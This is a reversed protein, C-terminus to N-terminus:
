IRWQDTIFFRSTTTDDNDGTSGPLGWLERKYIIYSFLRTYIYINKKYWPVLINNEKADNQMRISPNCSTYDRAPRQEKWVQAPFNRETLHSPKNEQTGGGQKQIQFKMLCHKACLLGSATATKVKCTCTRVEQIIPVRKSYDPQIFLIFTEPVVKSSEQYVLLKSKNPWFSESGDFLHLGCHQFWWTSARLMTENTSFLWPWKM